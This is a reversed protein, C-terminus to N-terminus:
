LVFLVGVILGIVIAVLIIYKVALKLSVLLWTLLISVMFAVFVSPKQELSWWASISILLGAIGLGIISIKQLSGQFRRTSLVSVIDFGLRYSKRWGLLRIYFHPVNYVFLFIPLAIWGVTLGICMALALTLPKIRSWFLQDGLVGLPGAMREKFVSIPRMDPWKKILAEEELKTVAGLCYTAFYPHSNFFDLHRRLFDSREKPTDYLRRALPIVCFCFGMGILAKFNWTAQIVICRIFINIRDIKATYRAMM